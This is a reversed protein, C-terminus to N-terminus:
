GDECETRRPERRSWKSAPRAAQSCWWSRSSSLSPPAVHEGGSVSSPGRRRGTYPVGAGSPSRSVGRRVRASRNKFGGALALSRARILSCRGGRTRTFSHSRATGEALAASWASEVDGAHADTSDRRERRWRRQEGGRERASGRELCGGGPACCWQPQTRAASQMANKLHACAARAECASDESEM